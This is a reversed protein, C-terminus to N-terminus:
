PRKLAPEPLPPQGPSPWPTPSSISILWVRADVLAVDPASYIAQEANRLLVQKAGVGLVCRILINADLVLPRPTV